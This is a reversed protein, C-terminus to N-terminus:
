RRLAQTRSVSTVTLRRNRLPALIQGVTLSVGVALMSSVVFTLMALPVAKSLIEMYITGM